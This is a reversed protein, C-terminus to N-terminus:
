LALSSSGSPGRAPKSSVVQSYRTLFIQLLTAPVVSSAITRPRKGLGASNASCFFFYTASRFWQPSQELALSDSEMPYTKNSGILALFVKDHFKAAVDAPLLRVAGAGLVGLANWLPERWIRGSRVKVPNKGEMRREESRALFMLLDDYRGTASYMSEM